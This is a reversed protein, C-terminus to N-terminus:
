GQSCNEWSTIGKASLASVPMVLEAKWREAILDEVLQTDITNEAM